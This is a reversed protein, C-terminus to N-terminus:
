RSVRKLLEDVAGALTDPGFPKRLFSSGVAVLGRREVEDDTYGSTFLVPVEPLREALQAALREGGMVPMALDTVVADLRGAITPLLELAAEGHGAEYVLYGADRLSRVMMSRVLVDDEVVLVAEGQGRPAHPAAPEPLPGDAALPLYVKFATGRGLESSCCVYGGSQRVIGYVMSLGLGTGQGVEKTTFFPEFVHRITEAAMGTGTDTVVLAAYVGPRVVAPRLAAYDASLEVASTEITVTGGGPMADRANLVLNLVVQDLQSPDARITGLDPALRLILGQDETLARQLIPQLNRVADNLSVLKPQLVQRRSFALLQRTIAATRQAAQRIQDADRRVQEPLDECRLIFDAAGLVVAMQNNAEHAMGGALRGVVDIRDAERLRQEAAKRVTLDLVFFVGDPRDRSLAAGGVLVPVRRGDKHWFEKEYPACAGAAVVEATAQQDAAAHEPPTLRGHRLLGAELDARDYGLIALLAENAQVIREGNWFAIGIMGSDFVSRFRAESERLADDARRRETVDEVTGVYGTVAGGEGIASANVRTWVVTGDRHLFRHESHFPLGLTAAEYWGAFVRARDDPHIAESWGKGSADEMGLGSIRQYAANTYICDGAPDTVYIGLPSCDAMARFLAASEAAPAEPPRHRATM